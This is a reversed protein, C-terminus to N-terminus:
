VESKSRCRAGAALRHVSESITAEAAFQRISHGTLEQEPMKGERGIAVRIEFYNGCRSAPQQALRRRAADLDLVTRTEGVDVRSVADNLVGELYAIEQSFDAM